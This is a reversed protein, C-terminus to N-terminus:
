AKSRAAVTTPMASKLVKYIVVAYALYKGARLTKVLLQRTHTRVIAIGRSGAELERHITAIKCSM